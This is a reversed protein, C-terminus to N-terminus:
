AAERVSEGTKAVVRIAGQRPVEEEHAKVFTYYGEAWLKDRMAKADRKTTTGDEGVTARFLRGEWAGPGMARLEDKLREEEVRLAAIRAQLRGLEDVVTINTRDTM